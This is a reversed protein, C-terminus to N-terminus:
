IIAIHKIESLINGYLDSNNEFFPNEIFSFKFYKEHFYYSILNFKIYWCLVSYLYGTKMISFYYFIPFFSLKIRIFSINLLRSLLFM